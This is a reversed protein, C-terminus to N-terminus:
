GNPRIKAAFGSLGPRSMADRILNAQNFFYYSQRQLEDPTSARDNLSASYEYFRSRNAVLEDLARGACYQALPELYKDEDLDTGDSTLQAQKTQIWIRVATDETLHQNLIIRDGQHRWGLIEVYDGSPGTAENWAELKKVINGTPYVTGTPLGFERYNALWTNTRPVLTWVMGEGLWLIARDILRNLHADTWGWFPYGKVAAGNLHTAATSGRQGRTMESITGSSFARVQLIETGIELLMRDSLGTGSTLTASTATTTTIAASLTTTLEPWANLLDRIATRLDSRNKGM